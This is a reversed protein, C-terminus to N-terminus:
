GLRLQGVQGVEGLVVQRDGVLCDSTGRPPPTGTSVTPWNPHRMELTRCVEYLWPVTEYRPMVCPTVWRYADNEWNLVLKPASVEFRFAFVTWTASDGGLLLPDAQRVLRLTEMDLGAEEYIETRAQEFPHTAAPLFGTVCHWKGRDSGVAQSRRLLCIRGRHTLVSAVVRRTPSALDTASFSM